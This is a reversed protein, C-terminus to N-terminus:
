LNNEREEQEVEKLLKREDATFEYNELLDPRRQYTRRLAEKQKWTAINAHHGSLLVDPVKLGRFDAPRTYQPYELLGTSFSEDVASRDDGLAEDLLRVTADVVVMAGLEGGTLVFDGLSIEDDVLSRIREDYGEYHGAIITLHEEKALEEAMPQNFTKGAPDMLIVRGRNGAAKEVADMADFLPQPMLLMGQGGGYIEDDVKHHKNETYDRFDTVNFDVLGREVTKGIISERMPAFMNPFLSLVDIRM